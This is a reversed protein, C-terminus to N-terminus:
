KGSKMGRENRLLSASCTSPKALSHATTVCWRHTPNPFPSRLNSYSNPSEYPYRGHKSASQIYVYVCVYSVIVPEAGVRVARPQDRVRLRLQLLRQHHARRGLGDDPVHKPLPDRAVATRTHPSFPPPLVCASSSSPASVCARTRVDHSTCLVIDDGGGEAM